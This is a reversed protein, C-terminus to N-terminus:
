LVHVRHPMTHDMAASQEVFARPNRWFYSRRNATQSLQRGRMVLELEFPHFGHITHQTGLDWLYRYEVCRKVRREPRGRIHIRTRVLPQPLADAAIPKVADTM